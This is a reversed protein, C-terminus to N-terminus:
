FRHKRCYPMGSKIHFDNTDLSVNCQTCVFCSYHFAGISLECYAGTIPKQCRKCTSGGSAHNQCYYKGGVLYYESLHTGCGEKECTFCEFHFNKGAVHCVDKPEIGGGCRHCAVTDTIVLLSDLQKLIQAIGLISSKLAASEGDIKAEIVGIGHLILQKVLGKVENEKTKYFFYFWV